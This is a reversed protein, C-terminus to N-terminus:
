SEGRLIPELTRMMSSLKISVEVLFDDDLAELPVTEHVRAWGRVWEGVEVEAGLSEKIDKSRRSMLELYQFNSDPDSEFHLGLEVEKKTRQIHVEYHVALRDFYLKILSSFRRAVQFDSLEPPVQQRVLDPLTELFERTKMTSGKANTM